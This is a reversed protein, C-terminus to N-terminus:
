TIVLNIDDDSTFWIKFYNIDDISIDIINFQFTDGPSCKIIKSQEITDFKNNHFHTYEMLENENNLFRFRCSLGSVDTKNYTNVYIYHEIDSNYNDTSQVNINITKITKIKDVYGNANEEETVIIDEDNISISNDIAIQENNSIPEHNETSPNQQKCVFYFDGGGGVGSLISRWTYYISTRGLSNAKITYSNFIDDWSTFNNINNKTVIAINSNGSTFSMDYLYSANADEPIFKIFKKLNNTEGIPVNCTHSTEVSKIYIKSSDSTIVKVNMTGYDKDGYLVHIDSTANNIWTCKNFENNVISVADGDYGTSGHIYTDIFFYLQKFNFPIKVGDTTFTIYDILKRGLPLQRLFGGQVSRDVEIKSINFSINFLSDSIILTVKKTLFAGDKFDLYLKYKRDLDFDSYPILAYKHKVLVTEDDIIEEINEEYIFDYTKQNSYFRFDVEDTIGNILQNCQNSETFCYKGNDYIKLNGNQVDYNIESLAFSINLNTEAM